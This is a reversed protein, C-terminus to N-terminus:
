PGGYCREPVQKQSIGFAKEVFPVLWELRFHMLQLDVLTSNLYEAQSNNLSDGTIKQLIIIINALSELAWTLLGNSRVVHGEIINGYKDWIKKLVPVLESSVDVGQFKELSTCDQALQVASTNPPLSDNVLKPSPIHPVLDLSVGLGQVYKETDGKAFSQCISLKAPVSIDKYECVVEEVTTEKQGSTSPPNKDGQRNESHNSFTSSCLEESSSESGMDDTSDIDEDEDEESSCLDSTLWLPPPWFMSSFERSSSELACCDKDM